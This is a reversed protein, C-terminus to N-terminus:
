LLFRMLWREMTSIIPIRLYWLILRGMSSSLRRRIFLPQGLPQKWSYWQLIVLGGMM